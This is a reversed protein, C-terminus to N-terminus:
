QAPLLAQLAQKREAKLRELEAVDESLWFGKTRQQLALVGAWYKEQVQQLARGKELEVSAVTAEFLQDSKTMAYLPMSVPVDYGLADRLMAAQERAVEAAQQRRQLLRPETTKSSWGLPVHDGPKQRLGDAQSHFRRQVEATLIDRVTEEPCHIARLNAAFRKLDSSYVQTFPTAPAPANGRRITPERTGQSTAKRDTSTVDTAQDRPGIHATTLVEKQQTLGLVLWGVLALNIALPSGLIFTRKM